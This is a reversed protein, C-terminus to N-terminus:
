RVLVVRAQETASDSTMRVWYVGAAVQRGYIDRGDWVLQYSGPQPTGSVLRRILRGAPDYVGLEIHAASRVSYALGCGTARSAVWVPCHPRRHRERPKELEAIGTPDQTTYKIARGARAYRLRPQVFRGDPVSHRDRV